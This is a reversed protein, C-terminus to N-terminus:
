NIIESNAEEMIITNIAHELYMMKMFKTLKGFHDDLVHPSFDSGQAILSRVLIACAFLDLTVVCQNNMYPACINLLKAVEESHDHDHEIM